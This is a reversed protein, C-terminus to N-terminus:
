FSMKQCFFTYDTEIKSLEWPALMLSFVGKLDNLQFATKMLAAINFSIKDGKNMLLAATKTLLRKDEDHYRLMKVLVFRCPMTSMDLLLPLSSKQDDCSLGKLVKEVEEPTSAILLLCKAIKTKDVFTMQPVLSKFTENELLSRGKSAKLLTGLYAKPSASFLVRFHEIYQEDSLSPLYSDALEKGAFRFKSNSLSELYKLLWDPNNAFRKM